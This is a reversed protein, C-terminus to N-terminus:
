LLLIAQLASPMVIAYPMEPVISFTAAMMGTQAAAEYDVTVEGPCQEKLDGEQLVVAMKVLM